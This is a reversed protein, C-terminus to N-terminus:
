DNLGEEQGGAGVFFHFCMLYSFNGMIFLEATAAIFIEVCFCKVSYVQTAHSASLFRPPPFIRM